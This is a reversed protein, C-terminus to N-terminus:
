APRKLAHLEKLYLHIEGDIRAYHLKRDRVLLLLEAIDLGTIPPAHRLLVTSEDDRVAV